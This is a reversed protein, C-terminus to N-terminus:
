DFSKDRLAAQDHGLHGCCPRVRPVRLQGQQGQDGTDADERILVKSIVKESIMNLLPNEISQRGDAREAVKM